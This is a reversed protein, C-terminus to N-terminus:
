EKSKSVKLHSEHTVFGLVAVSLEYSGPKLPFGSKGHPNTELNWSGEAHAPVISIKAHPIAAGSQDTVRIIVVTTTSQQASLIAPLTAFVLAFFIGNRFQMIFSILASLPWSDAVPNQLPPWLDQPWPHL